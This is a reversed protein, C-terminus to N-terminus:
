EGKPFRSDAKVEAIQLTHRATHGPIYLLSHYGDVPGFPSDSVRNRMDDESLTDIYDLLTRRQNRLEELAVEADTYKGPTAPTLEKSAQVKFSRDKIGNIIEEDTMKIAGRREANPSQAFVEQAFGFLMKETLIIHELCESISWRDPAPKFRLQAESLGAVAKELDDYTQQYYDLLFSKDHRAAQKTTQGTADAAAACAACVTIFLIFLRKM